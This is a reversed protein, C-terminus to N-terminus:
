QSGLYQINFSKTVTERASDVEVHVSYNATPMGEEVMSVPFSISARGDSGTAPLMLRSADQPTNLELSTTVGAIPHSQLDVVLVNITQRDQPLAFPLTAWVHVAFGAHTHQAAAAPQNTRTAYGMEQAYAVGLKKPTVGPLEHGYADQRWMLALNEFYQTLTGNEVFAETIPAGFINEGGHLDYYTKFAALVSHGTSPFYAAGPVDSPPQAADARGYGLIGLPRLRADGPGDPDAVLVANTFVQEIFGDEAEVPQGIPEGFVVHGGHAQVLAAISADALSSERKTENNAKIGREIEGNLNEYITHGVPELYVSQEPPLSNDWILIAREFHQVLQHEGLARASSLPYGFFRVGGHLQFYRLLEGQIYQGTELFLIGSADSRGSAPAELPLKEDPLPSLTIRGGIKRSAHRQLCGGVYCRASVLADVIITEGVPAGLVQEGGHARYFLDFDDYLTNLAIRELACASLLTTSTLLYLAICIRLRTM